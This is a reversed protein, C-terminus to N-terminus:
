TSIFYIDGVFCSYGSIQKFYCIYSRGYGRLRVLGVVLLCYGGSGIRCVQAIPWEINFNWSYISRSSCKSAALNVVLNSEFLIIDFNFNFYRLFYARGILEIDMENQQHIARCFSYISSIWLIQKSILLKEYLKVLVCYKFFHMELNM